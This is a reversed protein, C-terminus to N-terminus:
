YHEYWGNTIHIYFSDPVGQFIFTNTATPNVVMNTGSYYLYYGHRSYGRRGFTVWIAGDADTYGYVGSRGVIDDLPSNRSTLAKSKTIRNIDLDYMQLGTTLFWQRQKNEFIEVWFWFGFFTVLIVLVMIVHAIRHQSRFAASALNAVFLVVLIITLFGPIIYGFPLHLPM